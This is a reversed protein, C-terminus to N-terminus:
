LGMIGKFSLMSKPYTGIAEIKPSVKLVKEYSLFSILKM